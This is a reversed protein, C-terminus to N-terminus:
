GNTRVSTSIPGNLKQSERERRIEALLTHELGDRYLLNYTDFPIVRKGDPHVIHVCTKRISRLDFSHADIFQVILLRFINAYSLKSLSEPAPVAALLDNMAGAQSEPSHHTSFLDFLKERIVEEKEYVITNRGGEVLVEPDILGTLPVFKDDLKLAYAMAISDAHCPVPLIDEPAFLDSQELIRRRVETLTLRDRKCDFGGEYQELRGAAQVPQFTVGRVCAQARAFEIIEGLEDDNVGRRVTVVLTTAINLANLKALALQHVRRTDAARLVQLAERRFSDFQLYIELNPEYEKLREAFGAERAIRIGNTNIMLHQIPRSRAADMIEFFQPHITPEGGSIQVISPEEENRVALDLMREIQELSRHTQREPGSMAYCTPCRLNCADTVEILLTCGHQEHDPCVGCDYPCGYRVPTNYRTVQEPTKVFIERARKYYDIDDAILVREAGHEPCRKLMWVGGDQFVIKADVRRLCTACISVATDYFQYPRLKPAM